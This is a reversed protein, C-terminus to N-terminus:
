EQYLETDKKGVATRHSVQTYHLWLKMILRSWDQEDNQTTSRSIITSFYSLLIAYFSFTNTCSIQDKECTAWKAIQQVGNKKLIFLLDIRHACQM